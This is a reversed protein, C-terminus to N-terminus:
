FLPNFFLEKRENTTDDPLDGQEICLVLQGERKNNSAAKVATKGLSVGSNVVVGEADKVGQKNFWISLQRKFVKVDKPLTSIAKNSAEEKLGKAIDRSIAHGLDGGLASSTADFLTQDLSKGNKPDGILQIGNVFDVDFAADGIVASAKAITKIMKASKM